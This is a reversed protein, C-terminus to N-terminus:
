LCLLSDLLGRPDADVHLIDRHAQWLFGEGVAHDLFATLHDYYGATNLLGIPRDHIELQSWAAMEFLEELTGLGGPMAVFARARSTMLAKRQHMDDVVVLETAEAHGLERAMLARPIVGLVTGGAQLVADAVTGMLGVGGGGYVLGFGRDVIAAGLHRAAAEYRPDDGSKSGCYVCIYEPDTM